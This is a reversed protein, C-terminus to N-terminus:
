SQSSINVLGGLKMGSDVMLFLAVGQWTVRCKTEEMMQVSLLAAGLLPYLVPVPLSEVSTSRDAAQSEGQMHTHTHTYHTVYTTQPSSHTPPSLLAKMPTNNINSLADKQGSLPSSLAPSSFNHKQSFVSSELWM